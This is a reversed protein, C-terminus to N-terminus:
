PDDGKGGNHFSPARFQYAEVRSAPDLQRRNQREPSRDAAGIFRYGSLSIRFYWMPPLVERRALTGGSM